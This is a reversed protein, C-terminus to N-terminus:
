TFEDVLSKTLLSDIIVVIVCRRPQLFSMVNKALYPNLRQLLLLLLTLPKYRPLIMSSIANYIRITERQILECAPCAGLLECAKYRCCACSQGCHGWHDDSSWSQTAFRHARQRMFIEAHYPSMAM